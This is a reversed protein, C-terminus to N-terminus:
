VERQRRKRGTAEGGLRQSRRFSEEDRQMQAWDYSRRMCIESCLWERAQGDKSREWYPWTAPRIVMPRECRKCNVHALVGHERISPLTEQSGQKM